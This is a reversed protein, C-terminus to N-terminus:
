GKIKFAPLHTASQAGKGILSGKQAEIHFRQDSQSSPTDTAPCSFTSKVCACFLGSKRTAK